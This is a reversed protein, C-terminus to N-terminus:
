RRWADRSVLYEGVSDYKVAVGRGSSRALRRSVNHYRSKGCPPLRIPDYPGTRIPLHLIPLIHGLRSSQETSLMRRGSSCGSLREVCQLNRYYQDIMMGVVFFHRVSDSAFRAM